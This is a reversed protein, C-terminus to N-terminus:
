EPRERRGRATVSVGKKGDLSLVIVVTTGEKLDELGAEKGGIAVTAGEALEVVREEEKDVALTVKRARADVAKVTGALRPGRSEGPVALRGKTVAVAKKGDLSLLVTVRDDAKLDDLKGEKGDITVKADKAVDFSQVEKGRGALLALKGGKADVSKVAGSVTRGREGDGRGRRQTVREVKKGDASLHVM